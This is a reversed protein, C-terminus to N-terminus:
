NWKPNHANFDGLIISNGNSLEYIFDLNSHSQPQIYASTINLKNISNTIEITIYAASTTSICHIIKYKIQKKLIIAVGGGQNHKRDNRIINHGTITQTPPNFTPKM